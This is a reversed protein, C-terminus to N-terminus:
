EKDHFVRFISIKCENIIIIHEELLSTRGFVLFDVHFMICLVSFKVLMNETNILMHEKNVLINLTNNNKKIGM